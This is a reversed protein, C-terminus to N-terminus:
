ARFHDAPMNRVCLSHRRCSCRPAHLSLLGWVETLSPQALEGALAGDDAAALLLQLLTKAAMQQEAAQQEGGPSGQQGSVRVAELCATWAAWWAAAAESGPDVTCALHAQLFRILDPVVHWGSGFHGHVRAACARLAATRLSLGGHVACWSTATSVPVLSCWAIPGQALQGQELMLLCFAAANQASALTGLQLSLQCAEPLGQPDQPLPNTPTVEALAAGM